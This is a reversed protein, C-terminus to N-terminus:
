VFLIVNFHEQTTINNQTNTILLVDVIGNM